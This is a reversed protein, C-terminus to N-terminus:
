RDAPPQLWDVGPHGLKKRIVYATGPQLIFDASVTSSDSGVERWGTNELYFFSHEPAPDFGSRPGYALLEDGRLLRNRSSQIVSAAPNGLDSLGSNGLSVPEPFLLSVHSDNGNAGNGGVVHISQAGTPVQGIVAMSTDQSSLRRVVFPAGPELPCLQEDRDSGATSRWGHGAVFFLETSPPKNQGISANDPLIVSDGPTLADPRSGLLVEQDTAGFVAGVRWSERLRVVDDFGVGGLRHATLDDGQTDLFLTDESNDLVRYRVGKLAGSCFEAHYVRSQNADACRFAGRTWKGSRATLITKDASAVKFFSATPRVLPISLHNDMAGGITLLFYGAPPSYSTSQALVAGSMPLAILIMLVLPPTKMETPIKPVPAM